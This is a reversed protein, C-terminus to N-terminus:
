KLNQAYIWVKNIYKYKGVEFECLIRGCEIALIHLM